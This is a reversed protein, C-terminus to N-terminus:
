GGLPRVRVGAAEGRSLTIQFPRTFYEPARLKVTHAFTRVHVERGATTAIASRGAPFIISALRTLRLLTSALGNSLTIESGSCPIAPRAGFRSMRAPSVM